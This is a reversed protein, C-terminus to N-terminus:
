FEIKWSVSPLLMRGDITEAKQTNKNYTDQFTVRSNFVNMLQVAFKNSCKAKNITYTISLDCRYTFPQRKEFARSENYIVEGKLASAEQDFPTTRDGNKLYLRGNIGLYNQKGTNWEKGALINAVFNKNYRTNRLIGDGGEYKSDFLSLTGLYYFGKYFFRELTFDVGVNRATGNGVLVENFTNLDLLNIMSFSTNRIVPVDTLYQFFPEIKLRMNDGLSRDYGLIFHHSRTFGLNRNPCTIRGNEEREIFYLGIPQIQSHKGYAISLMNKKNVQYNFGLRPEISYDKNLLFYQFNLGVNLTLVKNLSIKSQTYAQVLGTQDDNNIFQVPPQPLNKSYKNDMDFFLLSYNFGTRNTHKAGFKRNIFGSFVYKGSLNEIRERTYYERDTYLEMQNNSKTSANALFSISSYTTQNIFHNYKLGAFGTNSQDDIFIAGSEGDKKNLNGFTYDDLGGAGWISLVGKKYPFNLKFCLDQYVPLGESAPLFAKVLGMTSYRYNFLYSAKKGKVFPGESSFDLGMVGAQFAHERKEQNGIRLKMDFVASLANGYEAPFAGTLFDSNGLVHNNLISVFGGGLFDEGAFHNPNDVEIGEVKYIVGSPANGRVVIGNSETTCDAVGAFVSALRGPDDLGGAYRRTEEVTFSRASIMSMTNVTRDKKHGSVVVEGLQAISEKLEISLVAEKGSTVMLSPIEYPEYGMYTVKLHIRGVPVGALSFAGEADTITGKVPNTNVIFVTAGPLTIQSAEDIVRGKITQTLQAFTNVSFLLLVLILVVKQSSSFKNKIKM